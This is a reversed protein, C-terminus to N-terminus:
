HPRSPIAPTALAWAGQYTTAAVVEIDRCLQDIDDPDRFERVVLEGGHEARVKKRYYRMNSRTKSSRAKLFADISDPIQARWHVHKTPLLDTQWRPVASRVANYLVSDVELQPLAVADIDPEAMASRLAEGALRCDAETEAGVIGGFAVKLVRVPHRGLRGAPRRQEVRGVILIPTSDPKELLTIHPRIVTTLANAVSLSYDLDADPNKPRLQVFWPRLEEAELFTRATTVRVDRSSQCQEGTQITSMSM